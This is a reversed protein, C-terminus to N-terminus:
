LNNSVDEYRGIEPRILVEFRGHRMSPVTEEGGILKNKCINFGRLNPPDDHSLGIGLIWDAEAQKSTKANAVNDMELWKRGEGTGDSQCVGIVPAYEKALERAWGYISGLHLDEREGDFGKIKDLQDLVILSPSLQSCLREVDGKTAGASDFVRIRGGTRERYAGVARERHAVLQDLTAGLASTYLRLGVKEGQEENNIWLIPQTNGISTLYEAIWTVESSLFTTKGTEPRAFIFGFDGKRQPGLSRNLSKLRWPIGGSKVAREYLVELDDSVFVEDAELASVNGGAHFRSAAERLTEPGAKGEAVDLALFALKSAESRNASARLFEEISAPDAQGEEVGSLARDFIAKDANPYQGYFVAKLDVVTPNEVVTHLKELCLFLKTLEPYNSRLFNLDVVDKYKKYIDKILLLKLINLYLDM